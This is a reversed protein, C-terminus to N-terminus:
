FINLRQGGEKLKRNIAEIIPRHATDAAQFAGKANNIINAWKLMQGKLDEIRSQAAMWEDDIGFVLEFDFIEGHTTYRGGKGCYCRRDLQRQALVAHLIQELLHAGHLPPCVKAPGSRTVITASPIVALTLVKALDDKHIDKCRYKLLRAEVDKAYGIKISLKNFKSSCKTYCFIFMDKLWTTETATVFRECNMPM